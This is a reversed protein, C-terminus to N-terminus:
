ARRHHGFKRVSASSLISTRGRQEKGDVGACIRKLLLGLARNPQEGAWEHKPDSSVMMRNFRPVVHGAASNWLVQRPLRCHEFGDIEEQPHM